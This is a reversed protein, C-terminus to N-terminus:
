SISGKLLFNYISWLGELQKPWKLRPSILFDALSDSFSRKKVLSSIESSAPTLQVDFRLIKFSSICILSKFRFKIRSKFCWNLLYVFKKLLTMVPLSLPHLSYSGSVLCPDNSSGWSMRVVFFCTLHPRNLINALSDLSSISPVAIKGSLFPNDKGVRLIQWAGLSKHERSHSFTWFPFM